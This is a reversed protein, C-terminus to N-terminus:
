STKLVDAFCRRHLLTTTLNIFCWLFHNKRIKYQRFYKSFKLHEKNLNTNLYSIKHIILSKMVSTGILPNTEIHYSGGDHFLYGCKVAFKCFWFHLFLIFGWTWRIKIECTYIEVNTLKEFPHFSGSQSILVFNQSLVSINLLYLLLLELITQLFPTRSLKPFNVLIM